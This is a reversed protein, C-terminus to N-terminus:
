PVGMGLDRGWMAGKSIRKIVGTVEHTKDRLCTLANFMMEEHLTMNLWKAM